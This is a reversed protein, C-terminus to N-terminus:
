EVDVDRDAVAIEVVAAALWMANPPFALDLDDSDFQSAAWDWWQFDDLEVPLQAFNEPLARRTAEAQTWHKTRLWVDLVSVFWQQPPPTLAHSSLLGLLDKITHTGNPFHGLLVTEILKWSKHVPMHELMEGYTLPAARIEDDIHERFKSCVCRMRWMTFGCWQIVM